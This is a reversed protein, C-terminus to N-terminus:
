PTMTITPAVDALGLKACVNPGGPIVAARGDWVCVTLPSPVPHSFKPDIQMAPAGNPVSADLAHQKWMDTCLALADEIPVAPPTDNAGVNPDGTTGQLVTMTTGPFSSGSREARAFCHVQNKDSVQAQMLAVTGGTLALALAASPVIIWARRTTKYRRNEATGKQATNVLLNRIAESRHENFGPDKTTSSNM